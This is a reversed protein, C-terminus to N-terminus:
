RSNATKVLLRTTGEPIDLDEFDARPIPRDADPLEAVVAEGVLVDLSLQDATPAGDIFHVPPDVHTGTHSGLRLQSVNAPDGKSIRSSPVIEIGPDGPW